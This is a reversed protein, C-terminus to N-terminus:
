PESRKLEEPLNIRPGIEVGAFPLTRGSELFRIYAPFERDDPHYRCVIYDGNDGNARAWYLAEEKCKEPADKAANEKDFAERMTFYIANVAAQVEWPYFIHKNQFFTQLREGGADTMAKTPLYPNAKESM